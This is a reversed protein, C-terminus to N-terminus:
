WGTEDQLPVQQRSLLARVRRVLLRDQAILAVPAHGANIEAIVHAATRQAEDEVDHCVGIAVDVRDALQGFPEDLSVDADLLLGPPGEGSQLLQVALPDPA